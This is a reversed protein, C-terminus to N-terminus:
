RAVLGGAGADAGATAASVPRRDRTLVDDAVRRPAGDRSKQTSKITHKKNVEVLVAIKESLTGM